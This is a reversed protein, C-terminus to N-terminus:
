YRGLQSALVGLHIPVKLDQSLDAALQYDKYFLDLM